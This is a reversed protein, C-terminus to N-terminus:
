GWAHHLPTFSIERQMYVCIYIHTYIYITVTHYTQVYVHVPNVHRQMVVHRQACIEVCAEQLPPGWPTAGGCLDVCAEGM